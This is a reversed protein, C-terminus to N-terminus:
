SKLFSDIAAIPGDKGRKEFDDAIQQYLRAAGALIQSAGPYAELFKAIEEMEAVWRYAKPYMRPMARMVYNLVDPLSDGLADKVIPAVGNRMAGLIMSMGIAQTGKTLCAYGMKVASAEGVGGEVIRMDLGFDKLDLSRRAGDGSVYLRPSAKGDKPPPGGVIGVDAFTCGTPAIVAAIDKVTAPAVANCDVFVPKKALATLAPSLRKALNKAEGPPMVSLVFDAGEVLTADNDVDILGAAKARAITAASRGKLSTKVTAGRLHLRQGIAAGMEGAAVVVITPGM